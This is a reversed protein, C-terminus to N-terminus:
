ELLDRLRAQNLEDCARQAVKSDVSHLDAEPVCYGDPCCQDPSYPVLPTPKGAAAKEREHKGVLTEELTFRVSMGLAKAYRHITSIKPDSFESEFQAVTAQVVGLRQGLDRQTLGQKKRERVLAKVLIRTQAWSKGSRRTV